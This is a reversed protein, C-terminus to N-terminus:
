RSAIIELIFSRSKRSKIYKERNSAEKRTNYTETYVLSWPIGLDTYKNKKRNHESIRRDIDNTHGVYYKDLSQSYLIYVIFM